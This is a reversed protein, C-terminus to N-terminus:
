MIGPPDPDGSIPGIRTALFKERTRSRSIKGNRTRCVWGRPVVRITGAAQGTEAHIRRALKRVIDDHQKKALGRISEVMLAIRETGLSREYIGFAASREPIIGEIGYTLAEIDEPAINEGGSIIMDTKRGSFFITDGLRFGLDKTPYWGDPTLTPELDPRRYYGSFLSRSRIQIEGIEGEERERNLDDCIRIENSGHPKGISVYIKARPNGQPHSGGIQKIGEGMPTICAYLTNEAMGYGNRLITPACGLSRLSERLYALLPGQVPEGGLIIGELATKRLDETDRPLCRLTHTLGSPTIFWVAAQHDRLAGVFRAPSRLWQFPTALLARCGSYLPRLAGAFLGFDHYLPLWSAFTCHDRKGHTQPFDELLRTLARHSIMVGKRRGSTGSSFQIYVIQEPDWAFPSASIPRSSMLEGADLVPVIGSAASDNSILAHFDNERAPNIRNKEGTNGSSGANSEALISSTVGLYLCALMIPLAQEPRNMVIMARHGPKLGAQALGGAARRVRGTLEAYSFHVAPSVLPCVLAGRDPHSHAHRLIAGILSV